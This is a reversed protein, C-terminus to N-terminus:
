SVGEKKSGNQFGCKKKVGTTGIAQLETLHM